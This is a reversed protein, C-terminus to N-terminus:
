TGEGEGAKSAVKHRTCSIFGDSTLGNVDKFYENDVREAPVYYGTANIYM